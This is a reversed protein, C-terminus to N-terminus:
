AVHDDIKFNKIYRKRKSEKMKSNDAIIFGEVVGLLSYNISFDFFKVAGEDYLEGYQKFLTPVSTGLEKLYRKLVTFGDRYSLDDFLLAFEKKHMPSIPYRTKARLMSKHCSFHHSYFYVLAAVAQKPTDANITVTGYTYRINPNDALYAGIGQWLNDLARSGWYKPQVFSRGLEIASPFYTDFNKNYNCLNNTYLGEKGKDAIIEQCEGIRYAGVVELDEDDWLILHKYYNDYLDTDSSTGTGGGIARFSIERVRGLEKILFPSQDAECLVIQKGDVTKGLFKSNKVEDRLQLKNNPQIITTETQLVEKNKTGLTYLHEYFLEIYEKLTIRKDSFSLVPIVKGINFHLPKMSGAVAFEHPLLLGTIKNPLFLSLLYFLITNRADIKVPLIPTHTRKAIKLFSTKWPTDKLGKFSFRNVIGAPFIIVVEENELAENIEIFSKKSISGSINDVGIIIDSAQSVGMLMGNVLLKVKKDERVNGILEVLSFADSAGTIHNAIVLLRGTSPINNLENLKVTSKINLHELMSSVFDLGSLYHNKKYIENFEEEHLVKQLTKVLMNTVSPPMKEVLTSFKEHVTEEINLM